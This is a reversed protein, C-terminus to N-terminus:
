QIREPESGSGAVFTLHSGEDAGVERVERLPSRATQLTLPRAVRLSGGWSWIMTKNKSLSHAFRSTGRVQPYLCGVINLHALNNRRTQISTRAGRASVERLARLDNM